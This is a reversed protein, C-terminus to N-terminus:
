QASSDAHVRHDTSTAATGPIFQPYLVGDQFDLEDRPYPLRQRERAYQGLHQRQLLRLWVGCPAHWVVADVFFSSGKVIINSNNRQEDGDCTAGSCFTPSWFRANRSVDLIMTGDILDKTDAGVDTFTLHRASYQAELFLNPRLVGSYHVSYLDQPQGQNTLSAIDMVNSGTNNKLVQDMYLYSGRM